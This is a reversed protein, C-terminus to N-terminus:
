QVRGTVLMYALLAFMLYGIFGGMRIQRRYRDSSFYREQWDLVPRLWPLKKQLWGRDRIAWKLQRRQYDKAFFVSYSSVVFLFVSAVGVLLIKM